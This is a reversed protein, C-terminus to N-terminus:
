WPKLVRLSGTGLVLAWRRCRGRLDAGLLHLPKEGYRAAHAGVPYRVKGVGIGGSAM